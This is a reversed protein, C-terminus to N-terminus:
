GVREETYGRKVIGEPRFLLFLVVLAFMFADRYSIMSAPLTISLLNFILGYVYGGVVAGVTSHMGGMVVAIFAILLPAAGSLPDVSASRSVWFISAVGALLGSMVFAASIVVNAPVGMLRTTTFQDAAARMAMGLVTKKMILSLATLLVVTVGIIVLNRVPTTAGLITVRASFFAPLSVPRARSSILILVINQLFMSVAFSTIILANPSKSRVPRFAVLETLYSVLVAGLVAFILTLWWPANLYTASLYIAYGGVMLYEGYAFNVLKLIGYVLVLGLALLAYLSGLSLTSILFELDIM